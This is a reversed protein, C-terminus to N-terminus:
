SAAPLAKISSVKMKMPPPELNPASHPFKARWEAEAKRCEPCFKVDSTSRDISLHPLAIAFSEANPFEFKAAHMYSRRLKVCHRLVPITEDQLSCGHLGCRGARRFLKIKALSLLLGM